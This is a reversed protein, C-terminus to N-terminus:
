IRRRMGPSRLGVYHMGADIQMTRLVSQLRRRRPRAALRGVIFGHGTWPSRRWAATRHRRWPRHFISCSEILMFLVNWIKRSCTCVGGEVGVTWHGQYQFEIDPLEIDPYLRQPVTRPPVWSEQHNPNCDQWLPSISMGNYVLDDCLHNYVDIYIGYDGSAGGANSVGATAFLMLSLM